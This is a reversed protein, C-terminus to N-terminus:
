GPQLSLELAGQLVARSLRHRPREPSALSWLDLPKRDGGAAALLTGEPSFALRDVPKLQGSLIRM